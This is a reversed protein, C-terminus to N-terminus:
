QIPLIWFKAAEWGRPTYVDCAYVDLNRLESTKVPVGMWDVLRVESIGEDPLDKQFEALIMALTIPTEIVGDANAHSEFEPAKPFRCPRNLSSLM